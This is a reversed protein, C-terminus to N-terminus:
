RNTNSKTSKRSTNLLKYLKHQNTGKALSRALNQNKRTRLTQQKIQRLTNSQNTGKALSQALL